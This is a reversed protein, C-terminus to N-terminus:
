HRNLKRSKPLIIIWLLANAYTFKIHKHTPYSPLLFECSLPNQSKFRRSFTVFNRPLNTSGTLQAPLLTQSNGHMIACFNVALWKCIWNIVQNIRSRLLCNFQPFLVQRIRSFLPFQQHALPIWNNRILWGAAHWGRLFGPCQKGTLRYRRWQHNSSSICLHNIFTSGGILSNRFQSRAFICYM